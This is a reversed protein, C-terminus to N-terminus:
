YTFFLVCCMTAIKGRSIYGVFAFMDVSHGKHSHEYKDLITIPSLHFKFNGLHKVLQYLFLYDNMDIGTVNM